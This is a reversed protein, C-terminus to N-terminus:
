FLLSLIMPFAGSIMFLGSKQMSTIKNSSSKPSATASAAGSGSGTSTISGTASSSTTTTAYIPRETLTTTMPAATSFIGAPYQNAVAATVTTGEVGATGIEVINSDTTNFITQAIAVTAQDLDYVVYASRLFTDGMIFNRDDEAPTLGFQCALDGNSLYVYPPATQHILMESYPVKITAPGFGFNMTGTTNATIDCEVLYYTTGDIVQSEGQFYQFMENFWQEPLTTITTGSDMLVQISTNDPTIYQEEGDEEISITNLLIRYAEVEKM